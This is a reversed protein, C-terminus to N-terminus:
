EPSSKFKNMKEPSQQNNSMLIQQGEESLNIRNLNISSIGPLRGSGNLTSRNNNGSNIQGFDNLNRGNLGNGYDGNTEENIQNLKNPIPKQPSFPQDKKFIPAQNRCQDCVVSETDSSVLMKIMRAPQCHNCQFQKRSFGYSM